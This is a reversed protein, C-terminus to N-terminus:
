RKAKVAQKKTKKEQEFRQEHHSRYKEYRFIKTCGMSRCPYQRKVNSEKAQARVSEHTKSIDTVSDMVFEEIM